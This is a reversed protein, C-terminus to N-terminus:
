SIGVLITPVLEESSLPAHSFLIWDPPEALGRGLKGIGGGGGGGAASKAGPKPGIRGGGATGTSVGVEVAAGGVGGFTGITGFNTGTFGIGVFTAGVGFTTGFFPAAVAFATTM